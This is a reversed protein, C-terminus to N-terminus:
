VIDFGSNLLTLLLYFFGSLVLKEQSREMGECGYLWTWTFNFNRNRAPSTSPVPERSEDEIPPTGEMPWATLQKLFLRSGRIREYRGRLM